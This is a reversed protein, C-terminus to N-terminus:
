IPSVLYVSLPMRLPSAGRVWRELEALPCTPKRMCACLEARPGHYSFPAAVCCPQVWMPAAAGALVMHTGSRLLQVEAKFCACRHTCRLEQVCGM